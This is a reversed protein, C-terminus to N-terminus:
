RSPGNVHWSYVLRHALEADSVSDLMVFRPIEFPGGDPSAFSSGTTFALDFGTDRVIDVTEASYDQRLSGYPYAFADIPRRLLDQLTARCNQIEHRQEDSPEVALTPHTTTHAGIEILSSAALRGLEHVDMPRHKEHLDVRQHLSARITSWRSFTSRKANLVADEGDRRYLVDFWFHQQEVIPGTCAFVAAPLGYKELVPLAHELVGVYGDDFTLIVPRPPLPLAGERAARLDALSMPDCCEAILKCHREFTDSSVHLEAFPVDTEAGRVSHYCLIAVGPFTVRALQRRYYGADFLARKAARRLVGLPPEPSAAPLVRSEITM